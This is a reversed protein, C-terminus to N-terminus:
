NKSIPRPAQRVMKSILPLQPQSSTTNSFHYQLFGRRPLGQVRCGVYYVCTPHVRWSEYSHQSADPTPNNGHGTDQQLTSAKGATARYSISNSAASLRVKPFGIPSVNGRFISGSLLFQAKYGNRGRYDAPRDSRHCTRRPSPSATAPVEALADRHTDVAALVQHKDAAM